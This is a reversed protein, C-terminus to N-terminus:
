MLLYLCKYETTKHDKAYNSTDYYHLTASAKSFLIGKAQQPLIRNGVHPLLSCAYYAEKYHCFKFKSGIFLISQGDEAEVYEQSFLSKSAPLKSRKHTKRPAHSPPLPRLYAISSAHCPGTASECLNNRVHVHLSFSVGHFGVANWKSCNLSITFNLPTWSARSHHRVFLTEQFSTMRIYANLFASM